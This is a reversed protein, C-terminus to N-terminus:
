PTRHVTRPVYVNTQTMRTAGSFQMEVMKTKRVRRKPWIMRIPDASPKRPMPAWGGIASSPLIALYRLYESLCERHCERHCEWYCEYNQRCIATLTKRCPSWCNSQGQSAGM